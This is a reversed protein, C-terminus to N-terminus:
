VVKASSCFSRECMNNKPNIVTYYFWPNNRNRKKTSFYIPTNGEADKYWIGDIYYYGVYREYDSDVAIYINSSQENKVVPHKKPTSQQQQCHFYEMMFYLSAASSVM